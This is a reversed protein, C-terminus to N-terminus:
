PATWEAPNSDPAGEAQTVFSWTGSGGAGAAAVGAYQTSSVSLAQMRVLWVAWGADGASLTFSGSVSGTAGASVNDRTAAAATTFGQDTTQQLTYSTPATFVTTEAGSMDPGCLWALDDGAVATLGNATVTVPSTNATTNVAATSAVPTQVVDRGSFAAAILVWDRSAANNSPSATLTYSGSDAGTTRKWAIGVQQGDPASITQEDLQTFGSPWKGSFTATPQDFGCLLLIIDNTAVGSPVAVTPATSTNAGNISSSRYAM